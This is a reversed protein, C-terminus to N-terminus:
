KTKSAFSAPVRAASSHLHVTGLETVTLPCIVFPDKEVSRGRAVRVELAQAPQRNNKTRRQEEM